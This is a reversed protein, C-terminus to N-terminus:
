STGAGVTNSLVDGAIGPIGGLAASAAGGLLSMEQQQAALNEKNITDASGFASNGASTAAGAYGLPNMQASVGGLVSAAQNFNNLGQQYGGITIGLQQNARQQAASNALNANIGAETGSALYQNSGGVGAMQEGVAQKASQYAQATGTDAQTRLAATEAPTYGFQGPGAALISGYANQLQGLIAQQGKFQTQYDNQLSTMMQQQANSIATEQSSAGGFCM